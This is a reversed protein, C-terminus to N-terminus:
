DKKNEYFTIKSNPLKSLKFEFGNMVGRWLKSSFLIHELSLIAIDKINNELLYNILIDINDWINKLKINLNQVYSFEYLRGNLRLNKIFNNVSTFKSKEPIIFIEHNPFINDSPFDKYLLETNVFRM